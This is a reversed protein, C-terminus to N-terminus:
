ILEGFENLKNKKTFNYLSDRGMDLEIINPAEIGVRKLEAIGSERDFINKHSIKKHDEKSIIVLNDKGHNDMENDIHHVELEGFSKGKYKKTYFKKYKPYIKTKAIYRHALEGNTVICPYYGKEPNRFVKPAFYPSKYPTTRNELLETSKRQVEDLEKQEKYINNQKNKVEKVLSDLAKGASKKQNIIIILKKLQKREEEIFNSKQKILDLQKDLQKTREQETEKKDREAAAKAEERKTRETEHVEKGRLEIERKKLDAEKEKMIKEKEALDKARKTEEKEKFFRFYAYIIGGGILLALIIIGIMFLNSEFKEKNLIEEAKQQEAATLDAAEQEITEISKVCVGNEARLSDCEERSCLIDEGLGRSKKEICSNNNCFVQNSGCPNVGNYVVNENNCTGVVCFGGGCQTASSCQRGDNLCDQGDCQDCEKEFLTEIEKKVIYFDSNILRAEISEPHLVVAGWKSTTIVIFNNEPVVFYEQKFSRGWSHTAEYRVDVNLDYSNNNYIKFSGSNGSTIIDEVHVPSYVLKEGSIKSYLNTADVEYPVDFTYTCELAFSMSLIILFTALLIIKRM